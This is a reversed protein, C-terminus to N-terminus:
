PESFHAHRYVDLMQIHVTLPALILLAVFYKNRREDDYAISLVCSAYAFCCFVCLFFASRAIQCKELTNTHEPQNNIKKEDQWTGNLLYTHRTFLCKFKSKISIKIINLRRMGM